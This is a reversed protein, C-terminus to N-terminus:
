GVISGSRIYFLSSFFTNLNRWFVDIPNNKYKEKDEEKRRKNESYVAVLYMAIIGVVFWIAIFMVGHTIDM